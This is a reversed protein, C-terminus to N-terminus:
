PTLFTLTFISSLKGCYLGFWVVSHLISMFISVLSLLMLMGNGVIQGIGVNCKRVFASGKSCVFVSRGCKMCM